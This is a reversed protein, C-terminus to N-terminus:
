PLIINYLLWVLLIGVFSVIAKEVWKGAFRGELETRHAQTRTEDLKIYADLKDEIRCVTDSLHDMKTEMKAFNIKLKTIDQPM